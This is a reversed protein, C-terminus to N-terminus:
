VWAAMDRAVTRHRESGIVSLDAQAVPPLAAFQEKVTRQRRWADDMRKQSIEGREVARIVAEIATWQDDTTSNCLLVTDCGAVIAKVSAEGATHEASVAKMGLDDSIVVGRFGLAEKLIHTVVEPSFSALQYEDIAPVMVHATMITAVGAAIAAKFPVFEVQDLRRRDHEVIPLAEHSHCPEIAL